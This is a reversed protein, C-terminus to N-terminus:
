SLKILTTKVFHCIQQVVDREQSQEATHMCCSLMRPPPRQAYRAATATSSTQTAPVVAQGAGLLEALHENDADRGRRATSGDKALRDRPLLEAREAGVYATFLADPTMGAAQLPVLFPRGCNTGGAGPRWPGAKERLEMAQPPNVCSRSCAPAIQAPTSAGDFRMSM